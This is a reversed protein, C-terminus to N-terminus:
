EEDGTINEPLGQFETVTFNQIIKAATKQSNENKEIRFFKKEATIQPM